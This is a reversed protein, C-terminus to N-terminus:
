SCLSVTYRCVIHNVLLVNLLIAYKLCLFVCFFHAQEWDNIANEQTESRYPLVHKRRLLVFM